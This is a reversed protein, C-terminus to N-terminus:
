LGVRIGSTPFVKGSYHVILHDGALEQVSLEFVIHLVPHVWRIASCIHM